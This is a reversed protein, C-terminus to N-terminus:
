GIPPKGQFLLLVKLREMRSSKGGTLIIATSEGCIM